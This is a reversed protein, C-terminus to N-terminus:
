FSLTGCVVRDHGGYDKIIQVELFGAKEMLDAVDEGQDYGIELFLMGGKKLSGPCGELIRRYFRLGDEGGDLALLPEHERVEPMLTELVKTRIYPPNSVIMDFKGEAKEFLDSQLFTVSRGCGSVSQSYSLPTEAFRAQEGSVQAEAFEVWEGSVQTEASEEQEGPASRVASEDQGDSTLVEAGLLKVANERALELAERSLDVGVGSCNNSYALLSILICGSGTCLDLVRMGDHLNRLAEEVLIETDQRPILVREDVLFELGMFEQTGTLYQLPERAVRKWILQRYCVEELVSVERDGHVLLTNRDTECVHELLLRADLDAEGIGATRLAERGEEFLARYNM